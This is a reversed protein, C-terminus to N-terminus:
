FLSSLKFVIKYRNSSKLCAIFIIVAVVVCVVIATSAPIIVNDLRRAGGVGETRIEKCQKFPVNGPTIDVEELSVVCVVICEQINFLFDFSM